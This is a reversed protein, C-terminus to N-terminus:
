CVLNEIQYIKFFSHKQLKIRLMEIVHCKRSAHLCIDLPTNLICDVIQSPAKECFCNVAKLSKKMFFSWRLNEVPNQVGEPTKKLNETNIIETTGWTVFYRSQTARLSLITIETALQSFMKSYQFCRCKQPFYFNAPM